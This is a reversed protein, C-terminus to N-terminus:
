PAFMAREKAPLVSATVRCDACIEGGHNDNPFERRNIGDDHLLRYLLNNVDGQEHRAVAYAFVRETAFLVM